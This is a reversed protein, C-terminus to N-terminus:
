HEERESAKIFSRVIGAFLYNKLKQVFPLQSYEVFCPHTKAVNDKDPGYHWGLLGRQELWSSHSEEPTLIKGLYHAEIHLTVCHLALNKQWAPASYWPPTSCDGLQICYARNAEHATMAIQEINLHLKDILPKIRTLLESLNAELNHEMGLM